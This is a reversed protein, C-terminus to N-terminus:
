DGSHVTDDKGRRHKIDLNLKQYDAVAKSISTGDLMHEIRYARTNLFNERKRRAYDM